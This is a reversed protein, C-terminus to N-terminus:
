RFVFGVASLFLRFTWSRFTERAPTVEFPNALLREVDLMSSLGFRLALVAYSRLDISVM